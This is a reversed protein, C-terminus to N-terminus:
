SVEVIMTLGGGGREERGDNTIHHNIHCHLLWRGPREAVFEVDYREGPGVLITDKRWRAGPPVPNGDTEVIEFPGGHLHMPHVFQGAGVFRLRVREGVKVKLPETSPYAKGNITFYNPQMGALEMAPFTQGDHVTWESLVLVAEKAFAPRRGKPDIVLAGYLGLAQQRDALTHTHYFYTGADPVRFEYTFSQGPAIPPQTVDAAGDQDNPLRIGHWHVSTPEPLENKVIMRVRDGQTVRVLPGPVQGNYAYAGVTVDPLIPWRVIGTSLRFVKVGKADIEPALPRGGRADPPAAPARSVEVPRMDHGGHEVSPGAQREPAPGPSPAQPAASGHGGHGGAAEPTPAAAHGTHEGAPAAALSRSASGAGLAAACALALLALAKAM